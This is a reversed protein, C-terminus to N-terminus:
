REDYANGMALMIEEVTLPLFRYNPNGKYRSAKFCITEYFDAKREIEGVEKNEKALLLETPLSDTYIRMRQFEEMMKEKSMAFRIKGEEIYVIYDAIRDLDETIHTSFLITNEEQEMNEQLLEMILRRAVPDLHATPEDLILLKPHIALAFALSIKAKTGESCEQAKKDPDVDLRHLLRFYMEEDYRSYFPGIRSGIKRATYQGPYLFIEGAYGLQDKIQIDKTKLTEGLIRIEGRDAQDLDLISRILTTKGAGNRGLLGTIYGTPIDLHEVELQFREHSVLLNRIEVANSM